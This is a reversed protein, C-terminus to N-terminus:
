RAGRGFIIVKFTELIIQLDFVVSINKIYYLEYQLKELADAESDGYDHLIQAWGTIGPKVSFRLAYYPIKQKLQAVFFPREPRPGVFSMEGALVNIMQPIEDIRLKRIIRGVRTVRPDDVAAWVPGTEAEADAVMSRFKYLTFPREDQGVREQRYLIPGGSEIKIAVAALAAIPAALLLGLASVVMDIVRKTLLVWRTRRFGSSLAIWGPQLDTVAIKSMLREYFTHCDEIPIGKLRLLVPELAPFDAISEAGAVLIRNVAAKEVLAMIAQKPFMPISIRKPNGYSLAVHGAREGIFGFVELGLHKQHLLEEAVLRGIAQTGVILVKNRVGAKKLARIFGLRWCFLGVVVPILEPLHIKRFELAPFLYTAAAVILCTLGFGNVLRLSLERVSLTQDVAYLDACYFSVVIAVTVIGSQAAWVTWRPADPFGTLFVALRVTETGLAALIMDGALLLLDYRSYYRNFM